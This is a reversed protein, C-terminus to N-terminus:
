RAFAARQEALWTSAAAAGQRAAVEAHCADFSARLRDALDQVFVLWGHIEAAPPMTGSGFGWYSRACPRYLRFWGAATDCQLLQPPPHAELLARRVAPDLARPLVGAPGGHVHVRRDFTPDGTSVLPSSLATLGPVSLWCALPRGDLGAGYRIGGVTGENMDLGIRVPRGHFLAEFTWDQDPATWDNREAIPGVAEVLHQRVRQFERPLRPM